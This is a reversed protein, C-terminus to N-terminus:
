RAMARDATRAEDNRRLGECFQSQVFFWVLVGAASRECTQQLRYASDNTVTPADRTALDLSALVCSSRCSHGNNASRPLFAALLRTETPRPLTRRQPYRGVSRVDCYERSHGLGSM